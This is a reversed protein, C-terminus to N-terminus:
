KEIYETEGAWVRIVKTKPQTPPNQNQNEKEKKRKLYYAKLRAKVEPKNYYAKTKVKHEPKEYLEKRRAIVEPKQNYKKMKERQEPSRYYANIKDRTEPKQRYAKARAKIKPQLYYERAKIRCEESCYGKKEVECKCGPCQIVPHYIKDMEDFKKRFKCVLNLEKLPKTLPQGLEVRRINENVERVCIPNKFIYKSSAYDCSSCLVMEKKKLLKKCQYCKRLEIKNTEM